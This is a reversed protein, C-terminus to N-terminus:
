DSAEHESIIWPRVGKEEDWMMVCAKHSPNGVPCVYSWLLYKGDFVMSGTPHASAGTAIFFCVFCVILRM